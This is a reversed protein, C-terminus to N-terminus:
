SQTDNTIQNLLSAPHMYEVIILPRPFSKASELFLSQVIDQFLYDPFDLSATSVLAPMRLIFICRYLCKRTYVDYELFNRVDLCDKWSLFVSIEPFRLAVRLLM